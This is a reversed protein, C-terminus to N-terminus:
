SVGSLKGELYNAVDGFTTFQQATEDDIEVGFQDEIATILEALDLSDAGLDDTLSSDDSIQSPDIDLQDAVLDTLKERAQM